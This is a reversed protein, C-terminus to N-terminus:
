RRGTQYQATLRSTASTPTSGVVTLKHSQGRWRAYKRMTVPWEVLTAAPPTPTTTGTQPNYDFPTIKITARDPKFRTQLVKFKKRIFKQHSELKSSGIPDFFSVM